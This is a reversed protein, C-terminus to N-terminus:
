LAVTHNRLALQKPHPSLYTQFRLYDVGYLDAYHRILMLPVTLPAFQQRFDEILSILEQKQPRQLNNTFYGIAHQLVNCQQGITPKRRLATMFTTMYDDAIRERDERSAHAVIRGLARYSHEGHTRLLMKERTHFNVLDGVRWNTEFLDKLRRHAFVREVFLERLLPDNLRGEEEVPLLPMREMLVEAFIGRGTRESQGKDNWIKVREMGCSPSDKKLIYGSLDLQSLADVKREAYARMEDTLDRDSRAGVLRVDCDKRSLRIMERPIGLGIEVEPCVPVFEAFSGLRDIVFHNRQHQGDFRVAEGLLCASIGIRINRSEDDIWNNM